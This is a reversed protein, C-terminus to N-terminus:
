QTGPSWSSPGANGSESVLLGISMSSDANKKACHYLRLSGDPMSVVCPTGVVLATWDGMAGVGPELVNSQSPAKDRSAIAGSSALVHTERLSGLWDDLVRHLNNGNCATHIKRAGRESM